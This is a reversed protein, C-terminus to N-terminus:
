DVQRNPLHSKSQVRWVADVWDLEGGSNGWERVNYCLSIM